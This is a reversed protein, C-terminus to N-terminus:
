RLASAPACQWTTWLPRYGQRHWFVSARPDLPSYWTVCRRVGLDDLFTRATASLAQGIGRGLRDSRVTLCTVQGWSSAPLLGEFEPSDTAVRTVHVVGVVDSREEAVWTQGSGPLSEVVGEGCRAHLVGAHRGPFACGQPILRRIVVTDAPRAARVTVSALPTGIEPSSATRVGLALVPLLGHLLLPRVCEADVSPWTLTAASDAPPPAHDLHGRAARLVADMGAGGHPGLLPTLTVVPSTRDPETLGTAVRTGDSLTATLLRGRRPAVAPPLLPDLAAWRETQDEVLDSTPEIM